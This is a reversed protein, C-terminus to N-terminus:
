KAKIYDEVKITNYTVTADHFKKLSLNLLSGTLASTLFGANKVGLKYFLEGACKNCIYGDAKCTMPSRLKVPKGVYNNINDNTILVLKGNDLIYRYLFMNKIKEPIVTNIFNTTGCDSGPEGLMIGQMSNNIKKTNYGGLQTEIGRSYGGLITLNAFYPFDKQDVGDVYNSKLIHMKNTYPDLIAGSMISSKKYNNDFSFEGSEYFDYSENGSKKLDAAADKLLEDSIINDAHPDGAKIEDSYKDFLEDRKKIVSAIPQNM